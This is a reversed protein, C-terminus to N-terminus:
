ECGDILLYVSFENFQLDLGQIRYIKHLNIIAVMKQGRLDDNQNNKRDLIRINKKRIIYSIPFLQNESVRSFLNPGAALYLAFILLKM